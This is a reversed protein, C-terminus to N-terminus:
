AVYRVVFELVDVRLLWSGKDKHVDRAYLTQGSFGGFWGFETDGFHTEPADPHSLCFEVEEHHRQPEKVVIMVHAKPASDNLDPTISVSATADENHKYLVKWTLISRVPDVFEFEVTPKNTDIQVELSYIPIANAPRKKEYMSIGQDVNEKNAIDLKELIPERPSSTSTTRPSLKNLDWGFSPFMM